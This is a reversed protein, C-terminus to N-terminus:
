GARQELDYLTGRAFALYSLVYLAEMLSRQIVLGGAVLLGWLLDAACTFAFGLLLLAWVSWARGGRFGVAIRLMVLALSLTVFDFLPYALGLVREGLEVESRFMTELPAYGVVASSVLGLAIVAAHDAASGVEREAARYARIFLAFAPIVCLYGCVFLADAASPFSDEAPRLADYAADVVEAAAFFGLGVAFALWATRARDGSALRRSSRFAATCALLLLPVQVTNAVMGFAFIAPGGLAAAIALGVLTLLALSVSVVDIWASRTM